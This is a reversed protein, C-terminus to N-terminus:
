QPGNGASVRPTSSGERDEQSEDLGDQCLQWLPYLEFHVTGGCCGFRCFRDEEVHHTDGKSLSGWVFGRNWPPQVGGGAQNNAGYSVTNLCPLTKQGLIPMPKPLRLSHDGCASEM